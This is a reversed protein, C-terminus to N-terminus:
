PSAEGASAPSKLYRDLVELVASQGEPFGYEFLQSPSWGSDLESVLPHLPYLEPSTACLLGGSMDETFMATTDTVLVQFVDVVHVALNAIIAGGSHGWLGIREGDVESRSRLYRWLQLAEYVHLGALNFGERLLQSSVRHELGESEDARLQLVLVVYGAEVLGACNFEVCFDRPGRDHGPLSVVAPFPGSGPPTLMLGAFRGVYFDDFLLLEEELGAGAYEDLLTVGLARAQHDELLFGINLAEILIQQLDPPSLQGEVTGQALDRDADVWMLGLSRALEDSSLPVAHQAALVPLRLYDQVGYFESGLPREALLGPRYEIPAILHQEGPSDGSGAVPSAGLVLTAVVVAVCRFFCASATTVGPGAGRSRCSARGHVGRVSPQALSTSGAHM